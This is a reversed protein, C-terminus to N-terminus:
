PVDPEGVPTAKRRPSRLWGAASRGRRTKPTSSTNGTPIGSGDGSRDASPKLTAPGQQPRGEDPLDHTRRERWGQVLLEIDVPM